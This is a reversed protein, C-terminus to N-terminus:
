YCLELVYIRILYQTFIHTEIVYTLLIICVKTRVVTNECSPPKYAELDHVWGNTFQVHAEMSKFNRFQAETYASVGYVLYVFIDPFTLPPLDDPDRTCERAPVEYPDLNGILATKELYRNRADPLLKDRYLVNPENLQSKLRTKSM